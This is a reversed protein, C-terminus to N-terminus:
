ESKGTLVDQVSTEDDKKDVISGFDTDTIMRFDALSKDNDSKKMLSKLKTKLESIINIYEPDNIINNMQNPDKELDYL